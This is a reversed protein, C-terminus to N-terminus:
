SKWMWYRTSFKHKMVIRGDLASKGQLEAEPIL